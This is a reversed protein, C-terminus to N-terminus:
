NASSLWITHKERPLSNSKSEANRTVQLEKSLSGPNGMLELHINNNDKDLDHYVCWAYMIILMM